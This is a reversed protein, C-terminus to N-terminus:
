VNKKLYNISLVILSLFSEIISKNLYYRYVKYGDIHKRIVSSSLSNNSLKWSVLCDDLGFFIHGKQALKLWLVYDEKTKLKAFRFHKLIKKQIIVTSLGIDCSKFLDKFTLDKAIRKGIIKNQDNMIQYSTHTIKYNNKVMFFMQKKLKDKKWIDDADLFAIYEGKAVKIARNRSEGAGINKKNVLIKIKKNNNTIKTLNKLENKNEDDYVILIEYINYTQNLISKLTKNIFKKKRFYPLIISVTKM